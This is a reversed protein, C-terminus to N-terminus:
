EHPQGCGQALLAELGAGHSQQRGYREVAAEQASVPLMQRALHPEQTVLVDLGLEPRMAVNVIRGM